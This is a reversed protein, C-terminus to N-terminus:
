GAVEGQVGLRQVAAALDAAAGAVLRDATDLDTLAFRVEDGAQLQGLVPRDAAIAVALVPYGGTVPHDALLVIPGGSPPLEIAGWTMPLSTRTGGETVPLEPGALRLGTRDSAPTVLWRTALLGRMAAPPLDRADPGAIVRVTRPGRARSAGSSPGPGPWRRGAPPQASPVLARLRDGPALGPPGGEATAVSSASGLIRPAEIGGTLALYARAGDVAAGFVLTTGAALRHTTGPRLRRGEEAVMAELDAGALAITVAERVALEPGILTMELVPAAPDNGLLLNAAARALPDCAGGTPLGLAAGDPRGADEIASRLGPDIVELM